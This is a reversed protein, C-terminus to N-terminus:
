NGIWETKALTVYGLKTEKETQSKVYQRVVTYEFDWPVHIGRKFVLNETVTFNQASIDIQYRCVEEKERIVPSITANLVKIERRHLTGVSIASAEAVYMSYPNRTFDWADPRRITVTVGTLTQKGYNYITLPIPVLGSWVQPTVAAFSEGGTINELNQRSLTAVDSIKLSATNIGQVADGIGQATADLGRKTDRLSDSIKGFTTAQEADTAYANRIEACMLVTILIIWTAKEPRTPEKRLSMVAIVLGMITVYVGVPPRHGHDSLSVPIVFAAISICSLIFPPWHERLLRVGKARSERGKLWLRRSRRRYMRYLAKYELIRNAM